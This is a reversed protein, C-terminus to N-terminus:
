EYLQTGVRARIGARIEGCKAHTTFAADNNHVLASNQVYKTTAPMLQPAEVPWISRCGGLTRANCPDM